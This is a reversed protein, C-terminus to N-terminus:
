YFVQIYLLVGQIILAQVVMACLSATGIQPGLELDEKSDV